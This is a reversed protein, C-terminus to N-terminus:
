VAEKRSESENATEANKQSSSYTEIREEMRGIFRMKDDETLQSFLELLEFEKMSLEFSSTKERGYYLMDLSVNLYEAVKAVKNISPINESWKRMSSKPFGCEREIETLTKTTISMINQIIDVIKREKRQRLIKKRMTSLRLINRYLIFLALLYQRTYYFLGYFPLKKCNKNYKTQKAVVNYCM